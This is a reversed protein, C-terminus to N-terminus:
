SQSHRRSTSPPQRIASGARRAVFLQVSVRPSYRLVAVFGGHMDLGIIRRLKRQAVCRSNEAAPSRLYSCYSYNVNENAIRISHRRADCRTGLICSYRANSAAAMAKAFAVAFAPVWQHLFGRGAIAASETQTAM